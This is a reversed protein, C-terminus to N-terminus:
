HTSRSLRDKLLDDLRFGSKVEAVLLDLGLAIAYDSVAAREAEIERSIAEISRLPRPRADSARHAEVREPPAELLILIDPALSQIATLPIRVLEEDNDIVGHADILIPLDERGARYGALANALRTQNHRIVPASATRLAEGSATTAAKLLSSASVFLTGPHRAAYDACAHTKGVGSVGFVLACPGM